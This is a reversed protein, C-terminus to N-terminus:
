AVGVLDPNKEWFRWGNDLDREGEHTKPFYDRHPMAVVKNQDDWFVRGFPKMKRAIDFSFQTNEWQTGYDYDEDFDVGANILAHPLAGWNVEWAHNSLYGPKMSMQSRTDYELGGKPKNKADDERTFVNWLDQPVYSQPGKSSWVFGTLLDFPHNKALNVFDDVGFKDVWIFDQMFVLLDVELERARKLAWNSVHALNGVKEPLIEAKYTEINTKPLKERMQSYIIEREMALQDAVLWHDIPHSQRAVSYYSVAIGPNRTPTFIAVSTM